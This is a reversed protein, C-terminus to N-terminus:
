NSLRKAVDEAISLSSTLGPSEIGFLHVLGLLGHEQPGDIVFDAPKEGPGTLKPRVGAYDPVLAGDPLGPWYRRISAYFSEARAPDVKYAESEIWEVDPGFRMRGALDLTVHTGLGGDVPAPYILHSFAPRGLCGFYNGKALVLPPVRDEPYGETSRALEQAHLSAANVVADVPLVAPEAGGAHVEWGSGARTIGKVPSHFAIMGGAQELDGQLALMLAHSDIIGTERSLVAGTCALNPELARAEAGTLFSLGEVGNSIGQQYIGEIKAQELDNTAVILKGCRAHPVGHSECFDYLMRRGAVCHRARLSGSPYYMGGHIVESNRSSVGNGIGGTAEAVIVAHGRLALARAIALGVVGAGVVLIDM